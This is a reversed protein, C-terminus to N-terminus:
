RNNASLYQAIIDAAQAVGASLVPPKPVESWLAHLISEVDGSEFQMRPVELCRGYQQLWEVLCSEEPWNQRSVYMVPVANVGAEAFNGYGPKTLLADCSRMVDIYAMDLAEMEYADPHHVGWNKKVIWSVGPIRPWQNMPMQMQMGGMSVLVLKRDSELELLANIEPRRNVGKGAVTAIERVNHLDRMPMGPQLRIFYQASNYASLMQSHIQEAGPVDACYHRFIDAWNLSSMALAPIKAYGAAALALYSVNSLVLDPAIKQLVLGEQAVRKDWDRHFSLYDRASEQPLVEVASAMHMGFDTAECIHEFEGAVLNQLITRPAASRITLKLEPIRQLLANLVPVTQGIHGFGHSSIDVFLHPPHLKM